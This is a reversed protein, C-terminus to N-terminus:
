FLKEQHGLRKEILSKYRARWEAESIMKSGQLAAEEALYDDRLQFYDELTIKKLKAFSDLRIVNSDTHAQRHAPEDGNAIESFKIGYFDCLKRLVHYGCNHFQIPYDEIAELFDKSIGVEKAVTELSHGLQERTKALLGKILYNHKMKKATKAQRVRELNDNLCRNLKKELDEPSSYRIDGVLNLFSGLVMRSISIGERAILITPTGFSSAIEIEQGVGFSAYNALIILLDADLVRKRDFHYVKRPEIDKNLIPDTAKRPQHAYVDYAKCVDAIMKSSFAVAERANQELGTLATAMYGHMPKSDTIGLEERLDVLHQKIDEVQQPRKSRDKHLMKKTLALLRSCIKSRSKITKDEFCIDSQLIMNKLQEGTKVESFLQYGHLLAYAVTGLSYIDDVKAYHEGQLIDPSANRITGLLQGPASIGPKHPTQIVGLDMIKATFDSTLMINEPKI